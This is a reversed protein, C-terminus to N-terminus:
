EVKEFGNGPRRYCTFRHERAFNPADADFDTGSVLIVVDPKWKAQSNNRVAEVTAILKQVQARKVNGRQDKCEVWAHPTARQKGLYGLVFRGIGFILLAYGALEPAFSAVVGELWKHVDRMERPALIVLLALVLFVIGVIRLLDWVPSFKEGHVDVEYHRDAIEGKVPVRLKTRSYGRASKMWEAFTRELIAGRAESM